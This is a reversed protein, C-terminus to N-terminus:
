VTCSTGTAPPAAVRLPRCACASGAPMPLRVLPHQQHSPLCHLDCPQHHYRRTHWMHLLLDLHQQARDSSHCLLQAAKKPADACGPNHPVGEVM